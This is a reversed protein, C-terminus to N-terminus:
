LLGREKVELYRDILGSGLEAPTTEIVLAGRQRLGHLLAERRDLSEQAALVEFMESSTRPVRAGLAPIDPHRMAAFLVMHRPMMAATQEIVDPIGATDAVETLWVLLARRQQARLVSAAAGAHDAEVPEARVVALAEVLARLHAPGRAPALRRQVRRGYALLGVKDGSAMAVQAVTLAADVSHDLLTRRGARARLLRGADVLLWIAQSREPQYVKTVLAGRRASARWYIDRREDGPRYERLNQFERGGALRRARRKEMAIQRSRVLYLSERRGARLDPYVRVQQELPFIAWREALHWASRWRGVVPGMVVDGRELPEVRYDATAFGHPALAVDAPAWTGSLSAPAHDILRVLLARGSGNECALVVRGPSEITLPSPWRRTVRLLRPRPLRVLDAWVLTMVVVDWAFMVAITRRDFWAPVLWFLGIGLLIFGRPTVGFSLRGAPRGAAAAPEPALRTV